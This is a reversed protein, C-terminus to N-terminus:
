IKYFPPLLLSWNLLITPGLEPTNQIINVLDEYYVNPYWGGRLVGGGREQWAGGRLDVFQGLGGKKPLGGIYQNKM